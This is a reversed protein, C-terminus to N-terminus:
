IQFRDVIGSIDCKTLIVQCLNLLFQSLTSIYATFERLFFYLKLALWEVIQGAVAIMNIYSFIIKLVFFQSEMKGITSVPPEMGLARRTGVDDDFRLVALHRVSYKFFGSLKRGVVGLIATIILDLNIIDFLFM